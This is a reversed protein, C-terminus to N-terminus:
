GGRMPRKARRTKAQMTQGSHFVLNLASCRAERLAMGSSQSSVVRLSEEGEELAEKLEDVVARVGAAYRTFLTALNQAAVRVSEPIVGLEFAYQVREEYSEGTDASEAIQELLVWVVDLETVYALM